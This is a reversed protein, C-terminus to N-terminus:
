SMMGLSLKDRLLQCLQQGVAEVNIKNLLDEHCLKDSSRVKVLANHEIIANALADSDGAPILYVCPPSHNLLEVIAESERTILPKCSALIQFVKNPIVSSAKDSTGFIGLCIDSKNIWDTLENYDVWDLWNLRPLPEESIMSRIHDAEQGKGILVWNINVERLKRAAEIIHSIGHLKIFQGYFLVRLPSQDSLDHDEPIFSHTRPFNETEVGVWVSGCTGEPLDFLVEMRKAHAKTDLFACDAARFALWELAYILCALPHRGTIMRRDEVTTNYLSLFADWVLPVGRLKAFPWLILVDLQGMYGILVVDHRPLRLYRFVLVPYAMVWRVLLRLKNFVGRVQSKDDVGGWVEKHCEIVEVGNEQLGRLLIRIRPKGTDYTGWLVVRM